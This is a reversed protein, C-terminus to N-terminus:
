LEIRMNSAQLSKKSYFDDNIGFVGGSDLDWLIHTGMHEM